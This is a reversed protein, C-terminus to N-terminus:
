KQAGAIEARAEALDKQFDPNAEMARVMAQALVRGAYIDTPYHRAIEVRHWGISRAKAVLAERKDPFVDALVLAITMSETSHGSPYSFSKQLKGAPALSPDAAYPRPRQWHDKAANVVEAADHHVRKLFAETKPLKGSVLAEGTIPTFYELEVGKNEVLAVAVDNSPASRSVMRVEMLDAAQEVSGALPPPALLELVHPEGGTLYNPQAAQAHLPALALTLLFLIAVSCHIMKLRLNKM